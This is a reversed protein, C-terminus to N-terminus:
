QNTQSMKEILTEYSKAFNNMPIARTQGEKLPERKAEEKKIMKKKNM